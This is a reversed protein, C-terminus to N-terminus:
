AVPRVGAPWVSTPAGSGGTREGTARPPSCPRSSARQEARLLRGARRRRRDRPDGPGADRPRAARRPRPGPRAAVDVELDVEDDPVAVSPLEAAPDPLALEDHLSGLAALVADGRLARLGRQLALRGQVAWLVVPVVFAPSADDPRSGAFEVAWQTVEHARVHDPHGYGGGPEYTM